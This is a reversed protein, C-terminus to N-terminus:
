PPMVHLLFLFGFYVLLRGDYILGRKLHAGAAWQADRIRQIEEALLFLTKHGKVAANHQM